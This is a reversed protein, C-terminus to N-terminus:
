SRPLVYRLVLETLEDVLMPDDIVGPRRMVAGQLVGDVACSILFAAMGADLGRLERHRHELAARMLDEARLQLEVVRGLAGVRPIEELMVKHLKPHLRHSAVYAEILARAAAPVPADIVEALKDAFLQYQAEVERAVLAAVIAEKTPFYQYLSGISVGAAEAIRNTSTRDYGDRTLVRATAQLLAEV